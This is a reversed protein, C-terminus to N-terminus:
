KGKGNRKVGRKRKNSIMVRASNETTRL